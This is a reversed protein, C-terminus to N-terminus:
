PQPLGSGPTARSQRDWPPSSSRRRRASTRSNPSPPSAPGCTPTSSPPTARPSAACTRRGATSAPRPPAPSSSSFGPFAPYRSRWAETPRRTARAGRPGPQTPTYTRYTAYAHLKQALRAITMQTRDVEAFYTLLTRTHQEADTHVYDLVADPILALDEGPRAEDRYHHATEPSWDLPGCEHALRRAWGVMALGTEVTALTHDQLRGLAAEPSMRYPRQPLLGASEVATAGKETLWWLLDTQGSRRRGVTEALGAERLTHLQRRLHESRTHHPTILRHLQRTSVLRHQYLVQAAQQAVQGLGTPGSHPYPM